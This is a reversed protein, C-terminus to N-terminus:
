ATVSRLRAAVADSETCEDQQRDADITCPDGAFRPFGHLCRHFVGQFATEGDAPFLGVGECRVAGAGGLPRAGCARGVEDPVDELGVLHEKRVLSNEVQTGRVRCFVYDNM